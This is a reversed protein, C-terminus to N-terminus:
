PWELLSSALAQRAADIWWDFADRATPTPKNALNWSLNWGMEVVGFALGVRLLQEDHDEGWMARLDDLIEDRTADVQDACGVLFSTVELVSPGLTALAWDIVVVRDPEPALNPTWYDGHLLTSRGLRRLPSALVEPRNHVAHVLDVVDAPALDDFHAWGQLCWGPLPNGSGVYAGLVRPSFVTLRKELSWLGRLDCGQFATHMALAAALLRRCEERSLRTHYDLLRGSLDNMVVVWGGDEQWADRVAHGVPAPLRAFVGSRWLDVDLPVRRRPILMTLDRGADCTKLVVPTGDDLLARELRAGSAGEHDAIPQRGVVRQRLLGL